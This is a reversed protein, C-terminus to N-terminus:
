KLQGLKKLKNYREKLTERRLAARQKMQSSKTRKRFRNNRAKLLIRSQQVKKGFRRILSQSTEREQKKVELGM